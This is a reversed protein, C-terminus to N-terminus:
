RGFLAGLGLVKGVGTGGLSPPVSMGQPQEQNNGSLLSQIFSQKGSTSENAAPASQQKNQLLSTILSLLRPNM